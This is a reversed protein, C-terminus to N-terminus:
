APKELPYGAQHWAVIGGEINYVHLDPYEAHLKEAASMSRIGKHCYLLIRKDKAPLVDASITGLPILTAGPLAASVYEEPERVDILVSTNDQLLREAEDVSISFIPM